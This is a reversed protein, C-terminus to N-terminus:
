FTVTNHLLEPVFYWIGAEGLKPSRAGHYTQESHSYYKNHWAEAAAIHNESENLAYDWSVTLNQRYGSSACGTSSIGVVKIRTGNHDTAGLYKTVLTDLNM